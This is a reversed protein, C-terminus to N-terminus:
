SYELSERSYTWNNDLNARRSSRFADYRRKHGEGSSIVEHNSAKRRWRWENAEDQYVEVIDM